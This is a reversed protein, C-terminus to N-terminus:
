RITNKWCLLIHTCDFITWHQGNQKYFIYREKEKELPLWVSQHQFRLSQKPNSHQWQSKEVQIWQLDIEDLRLETIIIRRHKNEWEPRILLHLTSNMSPVSNLQMSILEFCWESNIARFNLMLDFYHMLLSTHCRM